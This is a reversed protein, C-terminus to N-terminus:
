RSTKTVTNSFRSETGKTNFATMTFEYTGNPINNIVVRTLGENEITMSHDYIRATKGWYVRFGDLNTLKTGDENESPPTWNITVSGIGSNASLVEIAFAGLYTTSTGDTVSIRISRYLGVDSETPRGSM